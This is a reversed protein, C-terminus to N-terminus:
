LGGKRRYEAAKASVDNGSKDKYSLQLDNALSEVNKIYEKFEKQTLNATSLIFAYMDRHIEGAEDKWEKFLPTGGRRYKAPVDSWDSADLKLFKEKFFWHAKEDIQDFSEDAIAPLLFGRYYKHQYWAASLAVPEVKAEFSKGNNQPDKVLDLLRSLFGKPLENGTITFTESIVTGGGDAIRSADQRRM